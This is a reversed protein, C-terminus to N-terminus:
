RCPCLCPHVSLHPLPSHVSLSLPTCVPTTITHARFPVTTYPCSLYHPTNSTILHPRCISSSLLSLSPFTLVLFLLVVFTYLSSHLFPHLRPSLLLNVSPFSFFISFSLYFTSSLFSLATLTVQIAAARDTESALLSYTGLARYKVYRHAV